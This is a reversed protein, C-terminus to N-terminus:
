AADGDTAQAANPVGGPRRRRSGLVAASALIAGWGGALVLLIATTRQGLVVIDARGTQWRVWEAGLRAPLEPRGTQLVVIGDGTAPSFRATTTVAPANGGEHGIVFSGEGDPAYLMAGLGWIPLGFRRAQVTRMM